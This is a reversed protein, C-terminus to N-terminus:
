DPIGTLSKVQLIYYRQVGLIINLHLLVHFKIELVFLQVCAGFVLSAQLSLILFLLLLLLYFIYQKNRKIRPGFICM